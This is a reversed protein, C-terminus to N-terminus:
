REEAHAAKRLAHYRDDSQVRFGERSSFRRGPLRPAHVPFYTSCSLLAKVASGGPAICDGGASGSACPVQLGFLGPIIGPDLIPSVSREADLKDGPRVYCLSRFTGTWPLQNLNLKVATVVVTYKLCKCARFFILRPITRHGSRRGASSKETSLVFLLSPSRAGVQLLLSLALHGSTRRSSFSPPHIKREKGGHSAPTPERVRARVSLGAGACAVVRKKRGLRLALDRETDPSRSGGTPAPARPKKASGGGKETRSIPGPAPVCHWPVGPRALKARPGRKPSPPPAFVASEGEFCAHHEAM